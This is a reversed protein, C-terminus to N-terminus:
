EKGSLLCLLILRQTTMHKVIVFKNKANLAIQMLRSWPAYNDPGVLKKAILVLGPHDNNHIFLPHSNNDVVATNYLPVGTNVVAPKVVGTLDKSLSDGDEEHVVHVTNLISEIGQVANAYSYRVM